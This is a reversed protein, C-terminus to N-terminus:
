ATRRRLALTFALQLVCIGTSVSFQIGVAIRMNWYLYVTSSIGPLVTLAAHLWAVLASGILTGCVLARWVPCDKDGCSLGSILEKFNPVPPPPM